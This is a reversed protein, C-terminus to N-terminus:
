GELHINHGEDDGVAGRLDQGVKSQTASQVVHKGSVAACQGEFMAALVAVGLFVEPISHLAQTPDQHHRPVGVAIHKAPIHLVGEIGSDSASWSIEEPIREGDLKVNFVIKSEM